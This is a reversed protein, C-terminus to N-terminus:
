RANADLGFMTGSPREAFAMYTYNSGDANIGADAVRCKFGNALMDLKDANTQEVAASDANLKNDCLNFPSRKNDQLVWNFGSAGYNDILIWAPRFGLHVYTGDSSGNGIYSGFKSYGPIEAWSYMVYTGSSTLNTAGSSGDTVIQTVTTTPEAGFVQSNTYVAANDFKVFKNNAFANTALGQHGIIWDHNGGDRRKIIVWAPKRGLGHGVTLAGSATSGTYTAISFGAEQNVSVSSTINGDNNTVAAGGAKWCWAVYTTSNQNEDDYNGVTFGGRHFSTLLGSYSGEENRASSYMVKSVGRVSDFWAHHHGVSRAKIWVFDPTFELGSPSQTSGNGTYLISDFHRQPNVVGASVPAPFIKSSLGRAGTPPTYAFPRQGFNFHVIPATGYNDLYVFPQYDTTNVGTFALGQSVNNKYFYVEGSDSDYLIAVKDGGSYTAGYSTSSSADNKNGNHGYYGYRGENGSTGSGLRLTSKMGFVYSSGTQIEMEYYYKGTNPPMAYTGRIRTGVSPDAQTLELGGNRCTINDKDISNMVCFNNTPTDELSDNGYGASVSFNHATWNNANGSTDKGLNSTAKFELHFGNTGYSGTYKKPRWQGTQADTYGFYTADYAQGDLFNIEAMYGDFYNENGQDDGGVGIKHSNTSNFFLDTNQAPINADNAQEVGNIYIKYRNSASAQTTDFVFVIHYWASPDRFFGTTHCNTDSNSVRNFFSISGNDNFFVRSRNSDNQHADFIQYTGGIMGKVWLSLTMTKRNGASSPTRNLYASDDNNFRLSKEIQIGGLASDPTIVHPALLAM